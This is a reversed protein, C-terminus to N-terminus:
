ELLHGDNSRAAMTALHEKVRAKMDELLVDVGAEVIYAHLLQERVGNWRFGLTVNSATCFRDVVGRICQEFSQEEKQEEGQVVESDPAADEVLNERQVEEEESDVAAEVEDDALGQSLMATGRQIDDDDLLEAGERAVGERTPRRPPPRGESISLAGSSAYQPGEGGSFPQYVLPVAFYGGRHEVRLHVPLPQM